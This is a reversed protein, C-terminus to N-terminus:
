NMLAKIFEDKQAKDTLRVQLKKDVFKGFMISATNSGGGKEVIAFSSEDVDHLKCKALVMSDSPTLSDSWGRSFNSKGSTLNDTTPVIVKPMLGQIVLEPSMGPTYFGDELDFFHLYCDSTMVALSTKWDVTSGIRSVGGVSTMARREVVQANALLDSTLPSDINAIRAKAQDAEVKDKLLVSLDREIDERSLEKGILEELVANHISPLSMFLRQQRQIFAVLFERLNMRRLIEQQKVERFLEDLKSSAQDWLANQYAVAIRYQTEM